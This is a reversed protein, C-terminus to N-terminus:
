KLHICLAFKKGGISVKRCSVEKNMSACESDHTDGECTPLPHKHTTLKEKLKKLGGGAKKIKKSAKKKTTKKKKAM